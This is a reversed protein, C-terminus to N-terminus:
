LTILCACLSSWCDRPAVRVKGLRPHWLSWLICFVDFTPTSSLCHVASRSSYTPKQTETGTIDFYLTSELCNNSNSLHKNGLMQWPIVASMDGGFTTTFEDKTITRKVGVRSTMFSGQSLLLGALEQKMRPCLFFDMPAIDPSYPLYPIMKVGKVVLSEQVSTATHWLSDDLFLFWNQFSLRYRKLKSNM